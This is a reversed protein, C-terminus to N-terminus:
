QKLVKFVNNVNEDSYFLLYLGQSLYDTNLITEASSIKSKLIEKGMADYLIIEGGNVNTTTLKLEDTFPNPYVYAADNTSCNIIYNCGIRSYGPNDIVISDLYYSKMSLDPVQFAIRNYTSNTSINISILEWTPTNPWTSKTYSRGFYSAISDSSVGVSFDEIRFSSQRIYFQINHPGNLLPPSTYYTDQNTSGSICCNTMIGAYVGSQVQSTTTAFYYSM